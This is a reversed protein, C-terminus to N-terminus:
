ARCAVGEEGLGPRARPKRSSGAATFGALAAVALLAGGTYCAARTGAFDCFLGGLLLSVLRM